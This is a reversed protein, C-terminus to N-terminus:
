HGGTLSAGATAPDVFFMLYLPLILFGVALLVGAILSAGTLTPLWRDNTWGLSQFASWVGHRLHFGLLIM